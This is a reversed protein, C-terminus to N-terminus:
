GVDAMLETSKGVQEISAAMENITASTEDVNTALAETNKAVQNISSAMEEM